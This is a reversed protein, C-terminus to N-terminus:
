RRGRGARACRGARHARRVRDAGDHLRRRRDPRHTAPYPGTYTVTVHVGPALLSRATDWDKKSWAEVHARAVRLAPSEDQSPMRTRGQRPSTPQQRHISRTTSGLDRLKARRGAHGLAAASGRARTGLRPSMAAAILPAAQRPPQSLAPEHVPKLQCHAMLRRHARAGHGGLRHRADLGVPEPMSRRRNKQLRLSLSEWVALWPTKFFIPM